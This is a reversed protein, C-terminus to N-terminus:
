PILVIPLSDLVVNVAYPDATQRIVLRIDTIETIKPYSLLVEFDIPQGPNEVALQLSGIVSGNVRMLEFMIPKQTVPTLNGKVLIQGGSIMEQPKPSSVTLWPLHTSFPQIMGEDDSADDSMLTLFVARQALPRHYGDQIALTLVAQTTERPIEFALWTSFQVQASNYSDLRLLQRALLSQNQDMLTVRILGNGGPYIEAIVPIPASVVSGDLPSQIELAPSSLALGAQHPSLLSLALIVWVILGSPRKKIM